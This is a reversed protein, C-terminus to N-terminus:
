KLHILQKKYFIIFKLSDLIHALHDFECYVQIVLFFKM